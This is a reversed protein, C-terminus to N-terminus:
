CLSFWFDLSNKKDASIRMIIVDDAFSSFLELTYTVGDVMYRHIWGMPAVPDAMLHDILNLVHHLM